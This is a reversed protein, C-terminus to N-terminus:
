SYKESKIYEELNSRWDKPDFGTAKIKSLDLTSMLPRRAASPKDAFYEATTTNGVSLDYGVVHFIERTIDAWSSVSGENSMNYTGYEANTHLLHQICRALESAFTLRGVQDHIVKPSIGKAGLELMTKVFNKGDGVVWSTRVLYHKPAVAVLLDGAAKTAGYTSLPSFPEDETHSDVTGDFVYDSSVHVITMDHQAALIALNGVASANVNWAALRGEPTEAGDVNTYAAANIITNVDRWDYLNVARADSIDLQDADLAIAEPFLKQLEKGLQGKAGTVLTKM